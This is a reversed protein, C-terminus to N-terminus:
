QGQGENSAQASSGSAESASSSKSQSGSAIGDKSASSKSASSGSDDASFVVMVEELASVLETQSVVITRTGDIAKGDIRAVTGILLGKSYSGGLGSTLVVDGLEVNVDSSVDELHLIGALSGRVIGDARSSQLMCAAGSNPDTLLRVTCSGASTSIVQGIVGYPGMVTLGRSVGDDEGVDVTVTQNWADTSRGIIRGSVGEIKYAEKMNLLSSLREAELRYEETKALLSKLEDNQERLASLTEPSATSDAVAEGADDLAAGVQASAGQVPAVIGHIQSQLWHLPGTPGEMGYVSMAVISVVICAILVIRSIQINVSDKFTLAM